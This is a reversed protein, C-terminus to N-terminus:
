IKFCVFDTEALPSRLPLKTEQVSGQPQTEGQVFEKTIEGNTLYSTVRENSLQTKLSREEVGM